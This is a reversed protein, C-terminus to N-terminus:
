VLWGFVLTVIEFWHFTKFHVSSLLFFLLNSSFMFFSRFLSRMTLVDFFYKWYRFTKIRNKLVIWPASQPSASFSLSGNKSDFEGHVIVFSKISSQISRYGLNLLPINAGKFDVWNVKRWFFFSKRESLKKNEYEFM